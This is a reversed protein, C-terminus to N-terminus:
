LPILKLILAVLEVQGNTHTKHFIRKLYQRASGETLACAAAAASLSGHTVLSHALRAEAASLRFVTALIEDTLHTAGPDSICVMISPEASLSLFQNQRFPCVIVGYPRRGSPRRATLVTRGSGAEILRRKAILSVQRQFADHDDSDAFRPGERTLAVGDNAAALASMARNCYTVKGNQNLILVGIALADLAAGSVREGMKRALAISRRLHPLFKRLHEVDEPTAEGQSKGRGMILTSEFDKAAFLRAGYSHHMGAVRRGMEYVPDKRKVEDSVLIADTYIEIEPHALFATMRPDLHAYNVAYDAFFGEPWGFDFSAPINHKNVDITVLSGFIGNTADALAGVVDSWADENLAAAYIADVTSEFAESSSM